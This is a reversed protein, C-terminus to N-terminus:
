WCRASVDILPLIQQIYDIILESPLLSRSGTNAGISVSVSLVLVVSRRGDISMRRAIEIM